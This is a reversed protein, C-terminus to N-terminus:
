KWKGNAKMTWIWLLKDQYAFDGTAVVCGVILRLPFSASLHMVNASVELSGPVGLFKQIGVFPIKCHTLISSYHQRSILSACSVIFLICDSRKFKRKLGASQLLRIGFFYMSSCPLMQVSSCPEHSYRQKLFSAALVSFTLMFSSNLLPLRSRFLFHNLLHSLVLLVFYFRLYIVRSGNHTRWSVSTM